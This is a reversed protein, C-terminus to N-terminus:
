TMGRPTVFTQIFVVGDSGEEIKVEFVGLMTFDLKPVLWKGQKFLIGENRLWDCFGNPAEGFM